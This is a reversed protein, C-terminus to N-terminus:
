RCPELLWFFIPTSIRLRLCISYTPRSLSPHVLPGIRPSRHRRIKSVTGMVASKAEDERDNLTQELSSGYCCLLFQAGIKQKRRRPSQRRAAHIQSQVTRQGHYSRFSGLLSRALRWALASPCSLARCGYPATGPLAEKCSCCWVVTGDDGGGLVTDGVGGGVAGRRGGRSSRRKERERRWGHREPVALLFLAGLGGRGLILKFKSITGGGGSTLLLEDQESHRRRKATNQWQCRLLVPYWKVEDVKETGQAKERRICLDVGVGVPQGDFRGVVADQGDQNMRSEVVVM